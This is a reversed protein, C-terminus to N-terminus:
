THSIALTSSLLTSSTSLLMSGFSRDRLVPSGCLATSLAMLSSLLGCSPGARGCPSHGPPVAVAPLCQRGAAAPDSTGTGTAASPVGTVTRPPVDTAQRGRGGVRGAPTPPVVQQGHAGSRARVSLGVTVHHHTVRELSVGATGNVM